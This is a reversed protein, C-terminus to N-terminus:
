ARTSIAEAKEKEDTQQKSLLWGSSWNETMVELMKKELREWLVQLKFFFFTFCVFWSLFM